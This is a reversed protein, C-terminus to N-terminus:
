DPIGIRKVLDGFRPDGHLDNFMPNTKLFVLFSARGQFAEELREFAKEKENLCAHVAAIWFSSAGDPKGNKEVDELIRRAEGPEHLTAYTIAAILLFYTAKRSLTLATDCEQIADKHQNVDSLVRALLAHATPIGPDIEVTKRIQEIAEDLQGAWYYTVGLTFSAQYHDPALEVARKGAAIAEDFRGQSM